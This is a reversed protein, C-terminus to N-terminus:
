KRAREMTQVVYAEARQRRTYDHVAEIQAPSLFKLLDSEPLDDTQRRGRLMREAMLQQLRDSQSLSLPTDTIALQSRVAEAATTFQKAQNFKQYADYKEPGLLAEIEKYIVDRGAIAAKFTTKQDVPGKTADAMADSVDFGVLRLETLLTQLQTAEKGNLKLQVILRSFSRNVDAKLFQFMADRYGPQRTLKPAFMNFGESPETAGLIRPPETAPAQAAAVARDKQKSLTATATNLSVAAQSLDRLELSAQACRRDLHLWLAALVLLCLLAAGGWWLTSYKPTTTM